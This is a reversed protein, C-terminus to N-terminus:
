EDFTLKLYYDSVDKCYELFKDFADKGSPWSTKVGESKYPNPLDNVWKYYAKILSEMIFYFMTEGDSGDVGNIGDKGNIITIETGDSFEIVTNGCENTYKGVITLSLGDKGDEGDKGDSGKLTELFCDFDTCGDYDEPLFYLWLEYVSIGDLGDIGDIGDKGKLAEFFCIETDCEGEHLTLVWIEYASLGDIGNAGNTGNIGNEGNLIVIQTNDSFTITVGDDDTVVENISISTGNIGDKGDVGNEGDKGRMSDWFCEETDCEGTNVTLKWLEYVTIGNLGDKGDNGNSGDKGNQLEIATGDSFVIITKGNQVYVSVVSVSTGDKGPEGPIGPDGKEGKELIFEQEVACTSFLMMCFVALIKVLYKM